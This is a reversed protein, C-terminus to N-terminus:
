HAYHMAQEHRKGQLLELCGQVSSRGGSEFDVVALSLNDEALHFLIRQILWVAGTCGKWIHLVMLGLIVLIQIRCLKLRWIFRPKKSFNAEFNKVTHEMESRIQSFAQVMWELVFIIPTMRVWKLGGWVKLIESAESTEQFNDEM